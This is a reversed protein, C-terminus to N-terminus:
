SKKGLMTKIKYSFWNVRTDLTGAITFLHNKHGFFHCENEFCMSKETHPSKIVKSFGISLMFWPGEPLGPKMIEMVQTDTGLIKKERTM